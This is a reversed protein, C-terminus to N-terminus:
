QRYGLNAELTACGLGALWGSGKREIQSHNGPTQTKSQGCIFCILNKITEDNYDQTLLEISRRDTSPGVLPWQEQELLAITQEYLDVDNYIEACQTAERCQAFRERHELLHEALEDDSTSFWRCGRFACHWKPLRVGSNVDTWPAHLDKPDAPLTPRARLHQALHRCAMDAADQETAFPRCDLPLARIELGREDDTDDETESLDQTEGCGLSAGCPECQFSSATM